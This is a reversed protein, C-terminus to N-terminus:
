RNVNDMANHRVSIISIPKRERERERNQKRTKESLEFLVRADDLLKVFEFRHAENAFRDPSVILRKFRM